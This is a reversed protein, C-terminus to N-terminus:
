VVPDSVSRTPNSGVSEGKCPTIGVSMQGLPLYFLRVEVSLDMQKRFLPWEV